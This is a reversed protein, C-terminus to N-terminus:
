LSKIEIKKDIWMYLMMAIVINMHDTIIITDKKMIITVKKMIITVNEEKIIIKQYAGMIIKQM